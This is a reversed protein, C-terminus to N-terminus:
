AWAKQFLDTIDKQDAIKPNNGPAGSRVADEAMQSMAAKYGAEDIGFASLTPVELRRSASFERVTQM